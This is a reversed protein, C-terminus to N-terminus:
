RSWIIFPGIVAAPLMTGRAKDGKGGRVRLENCSFDIDKVRLRLCKMLRLGAGYLLMVMLWELGQLQGLVSRVEPRTLVVPVRVPRKARVVGNIYDIEQHLVERYLFLLANLAQNQTSASVRSETALSSLFAATQPEGMEAPHRKHSYHRLRIAERVQDLLTPKRGGLSSAFISRFDLGTLVRSTATRHQIYDCSTTTGLYKKFGRGLPFFNKLPFSCLHM